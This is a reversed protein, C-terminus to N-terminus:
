GIVRETTKHLPVQMNVTFTNMTSEVTLLHNEPYLLKLRKQVNILGIGKRYTNNEQPPKSNTLLFHLVYEDAQIVLSIWPEKLIRSAGHKFSNEIFPILLLPTIKKNGKGTDIQIQIDLRNGYRVKELEIYYRLMTIEKNLSVFPQNCENIMYRLLVELKKVLSKAQPDASLIFAYINNLTNFLFHPHVQAKLLQLEADLNEKLLTDKEWQKIYWTKLMKITFFIMFFIPGARTIYSTIGLWVPLFEFSNYTVIDVLFLEISSTLLLAAVFYAYRKKFLLYPIM